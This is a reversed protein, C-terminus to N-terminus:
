SGANEKVVAYVFMTPTESICIFLFLFDKVITDPHLFTLGLFLEV